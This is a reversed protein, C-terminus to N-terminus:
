WSDKERTPPCWQGVIITPSYFFGKNKDSPREGGTVIRGGRKRARGQAHQKPLSKDNTKRLRCDIM